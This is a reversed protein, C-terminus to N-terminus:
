GVNRWLHKHIWYSCPTTFWLYMTLALASLIADEASVLIISGYADFYTCIKIQTCGKRQKSMNIILSYDWRVFLVLSGLVNLKLWINQENTDQSFSQTNNQNRKPCLTDFIQLFSGFPFRWYAGIPLRFELLEVQFVSGSISCDLTPM